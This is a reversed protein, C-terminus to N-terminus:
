NVQTTNSLITHDIKLYLSNFFVVFFPPCPRSRLEFKIGKFFQKAIVIITCFNLVIKYIELSYLKDIIEYEKVYIYIKIQLYLHLIKM